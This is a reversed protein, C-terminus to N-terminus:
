RSASSSSQNAIAIGAGAAAAVLAGAIIWKTKSGMSSPGNINMTKVCLTTTANGGAPGQLTGTVVVKDGVMSHSDKCTLIYRVNADTTLYYTGNDFTVLGV